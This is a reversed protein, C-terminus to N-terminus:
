THVYGVSPFSSVRPRSPFNDGVVHHIPPHIPTPNGIPSPDYFFTKIRKLIMEFIETRPSSLKEYWYLVSVTVKKANTLLDGLTPNLRSDILSRFVTSGVFKSGWFSGFFVAQPFNSVTSFCRRVLSIQLDLNACPYKPSLDKWQRRSSSKLVRHRYTERMHSESFHPPFFPPSYSVWPERTM